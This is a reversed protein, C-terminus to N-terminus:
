FIDSFLRMSRFGYLAGAMTLGLQATSIQAAGAPPVPRATVPNHGGHTPCEGDLGLHKAAVRILAAPRM